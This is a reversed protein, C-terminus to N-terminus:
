CILQSCPMRIPLLIATLRAQDSLSYDEPWRGKEVEPPFLIENKVGFGITQEHADNSGGDQYGNKNNDRDLATSSWIQQQM